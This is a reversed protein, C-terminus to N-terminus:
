DIECIIIYFFKKNEIRLMTEEQRVGGPICAATSAVAAYMSQVLLKESTHM